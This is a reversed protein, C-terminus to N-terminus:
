AHLLAAPSALSAAPSVTLRHPPSAALRHSQPVTLCHSPSLATKAFGRSEPDWVRMAWSPGDRQGQAFSSKALLLRAVLAISMVGCFSARCSMQVGASVLMSRWLGRHVHNQPMGQHGLHLNLHGHDQPKQLLNLSSTSSLQQLNLHRRSEQALM